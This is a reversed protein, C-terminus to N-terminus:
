ANLLKELSTLDQIKDICHDAGAQRAANLTTDNVTDGSMMILKMDHPLFEKRLARAVEFGNLKPMNIDILAVDPKWSRAAELGEMGDNAIKAEFSMEQLIERLSETLAPNDDIILVRRVKGAVASTHAPQTDQDLSSRNTTGDGGSLPLTVVFEKKAEVQIEGGHRHILEAAVALQVEAINTKVGVARADSFLSFTDPIGESEKGGHMRLEFKNNSIKQTISIEGGSPTHLAVQELLSTLVKELRHDLSLQMRSDGEIVVSNLTQGRSSILVRAGETVAALLEAVTVTVFSLEVVGRRIEDAEVIRELLVGVGNVQRDMIDALGAANRDAGARLRVIHAANRIPAVLNRLDHVLVSILEGAADRGGPVSYTGAALASLPQAPNSRDDSM